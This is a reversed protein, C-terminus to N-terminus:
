RRARGRPQADAGKGFAVIVPFSVRMAGCAVSFSLALSNSTSISSSGPWVMTSRAPYEALASRTMLSFFSMRRTGSRTIM